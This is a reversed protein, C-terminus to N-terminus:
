CSTLPAATPGGGNHAIKPGERITRTGRHRDLNRGRTRPPIVLVALTFPFSASGFEAFLVTVALVVTVADASRATVLDPGDETRTPCFM